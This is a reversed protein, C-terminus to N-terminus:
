FSWMQICHEDYENIRSRYDGGESKGVNGIIIM